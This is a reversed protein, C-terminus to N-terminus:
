PEVHKRGALYRVARGLSGLEAYDREPIELGLQKGLTAVFRLFDMSDLDLSERLPADPALLAPDTEPAIARLTEFVTKRLAEETV